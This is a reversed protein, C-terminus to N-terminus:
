LCEDPFHRLGATMLMSNLLHFEKHVGARGGGARHQKVPIRGGGKDSATKLWPANNGYMIKGPSSNREGRRVTGGPKSNCWHDIIKALSMGM